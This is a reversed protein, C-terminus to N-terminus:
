PCQGNSFKDGKVIPAKGFSCSRMNFRELICEIYKQQSLRSIGNPRNHLIQIGLVNSAEGLDKM